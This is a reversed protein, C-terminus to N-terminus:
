GVSSGLRGEEPRKSRGLGQSCIIVENVRANGCAALPGDKAIIETSVRLRKLGCLLCWIRGIERFNM